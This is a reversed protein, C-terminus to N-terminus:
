LDVASFTCILTSGKRTWCRLLGASLCDPFNIDVRCDSDVDLDDLPKWAVLAKKDAAKRIEEQMNEIM